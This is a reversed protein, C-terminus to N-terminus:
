QSSSDRDADDSPPTLSSGSTSNENELFSFHPDRPFTLGDDWSLHLDMESYKDSDNDKLWQFDGYFNLNGPGYPELLQIEPIERSQLETITAMTFGQGPLMMSNTLTHAEYTQFDDTDRTFHTETATNLQGVQLCEIDWSSQAPPRSSYKLRSNSREINPTITQMLTSPTQSTVGLLTNCERADFYGATTRTQSSSPFGSISVNVYRSRSSNNAINADNNRFNQSNRSDEGTTHVFGNMYDTRRRVPFVHDVQNPDLDDAGHSVVKMVPDEFLVEESFDDEMLLSPISVDAGSGESILIAAAPNAKIPAVSSIPFTRARRARNAISSTRRGSPTIPTTDESVSQESNANSDVEPRRRRTPYDFAARNPANLLTIDDHIREGDDLPTVREQLRHLCKSKRNTGLCDIRM